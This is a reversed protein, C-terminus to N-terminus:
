QAKSTLARQVVKEVEDATFPKILYDHVGQLKGVLRNAPDGYATIVIVIPLKDGAKRKEKVGELFQWGTIDPLGIDLLIVDPNFDAYRALAKAGHSETATKMNMRELTASIVEALEATDEVILVSPSRTATTTNATEPMPRTEETIRDADQSDHDDRGEAESRVAPVQGTEAKQVVGTDAKIAPMTTTQLPSSPEQTERREPSGEAVESLITSTRKFQDTM